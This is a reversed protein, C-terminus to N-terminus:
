PKTSVYQPAIVGPNGDTIALWGRLLRGDPELAPASNEFYDGVYTVGKAPAAAVPASVLQMDATRVQTVGAGVAALSLTITGPGVATVYAGNPIAATPQLRDGARFGHDAPVVGTLTDGGKAATGLCRRRFPRLSQVTVSYAGSVLNRPACRLTVRSATVSDVQGLLGGRAAIMAGDTASVAFPMTTCLWEGVRYAGPTRTTFTATGDGPARIAARADLATIDVGTLNRYARGDGSTSHVTADNTMLADVGALIGELEFFANSVGYGAGGGLYRMPTNDYHVRGPTTSVAPCDLVSGHFNVLGGGVLSLPVPVNSYFGLYGGFINVPGEAFLHWDVNPTHGTPSGNPFPPYLCIPPILKIHCSRVDLAFGGRWSGLAFTSEV